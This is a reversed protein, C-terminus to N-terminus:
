TLSKSIIESITKAKLLVMVHTGKEVLIFNNIHKSPFIHDDNGHIHIINELPVEQHWHLVHYIAWKMYTADRVSLYMEYLEARKKLFDGLFYKTYDELNEVIKSPFLKYAKSMQILKLRYPFEHHSKISSVLIIKQVPIIKAMEQVIIGGFSVGLLVPNQHTIDECMRKAYAELPEELSLPIKWDLFHLEFLDKSLSIHEFIKSSAGLGPMCYIQVKEM